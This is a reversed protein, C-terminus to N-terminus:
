NAARSVEIWDTGDCWLTLVDDAGGAWAATLKVTGSDAINITQDGVNILVLVDGATGITITPTVEGAAQIGQYTGTATFAASDTVTIATQATVRVYDAVVVNGDAQTLTSALTMSGDADINGDVELDGAIGLDDDSDATAYSGGGIDVLGGDITLGSVSGVDIDIGSTVTDNADLEIADAAAESGILLLSGAEADITIDGASASLNTAGDTDISGGATINVDFGDGDLDIDGDVDLTDGVSLDATVALDSSATIDDDVTLDDDIEVDGHFVAPGYQGLRVSEAEIGQDKNCGTLWAMLALVLLVAFGIYAQRKNRM